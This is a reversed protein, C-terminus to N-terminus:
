GPIGLRQRLYAFPLRSLIFLVATAVVMPLLLWLSQVAAFAFILVLLAILKSRTEWRHLPSDLHAYADLGLKM